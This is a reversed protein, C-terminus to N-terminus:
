SLHRKTYHPRFVIHTKNKKELSFSHIYFAAISNLFWCESGDWHGSFRVFLGCRSVEKTEGFSHWDKRLVRRDTPMMIEFIDHIPFSSFIITNSVWGSWNLLFPSLNLAHLMFTMLTSIYPVYLESNSSNLDRIWVSLNFMHWFSLVFFQM